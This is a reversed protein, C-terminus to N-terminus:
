NKLQKKIKIMQERKSMISGLYKCGLVATYKLNVISKQLSTKADSHRQKNIKKGAKEANKAAKSMTIICSTNVQGSTLTYIDEALVHCQKALEADTTASFSFGTLPSLSSLFFVTFIVSRKIITFYLNM